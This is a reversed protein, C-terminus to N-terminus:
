WDFWFTEKVVLLIFELVTVNAPIVTKSKCCHLVHNCVTWVRLILPTFAKFHYTENLSGQQATQINSCRIKDIALLGGAGFNSFYLSIHRSVPEHPHRYDSSSEGTTSRDDGVSRDWEVEKKLSQLSKCYNIRQNCWCWYSGCYFFHM